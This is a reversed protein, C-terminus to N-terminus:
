EERKIQFINGRFSSQRITALEQDTSVVLNGSAPIQSGDYLILGIFVENCAKIIDPLYSDSNNSTAVIAGDFGLAKLALSKKRTADTAEQTSKYFSRSITPIWPINNNGEGDQTTFILTNPLNSRILAIKTQLDVSGSFNDSTLLIGSIQRDKITSLSKETIVPLTVITSTTNVLVNQKYLVLYDNTYPKITALEGPGLNKGFDNIKQATSLKSKIYPLDGNVIERAVTEDILFYKEAQSLNEYAQKIPPDSEIKSYWDVQHDRLYLDLHYYNNAITHTNGPTQELSRLADVQPKTAQSTLPYTGGLGAYIIISFTFIHPILKSKFLQNFKSLLVAINAALLPVVPILYFDYIQGGRILFLLFFLTFSAFIKLQTSTKTIILIATSIFGLSIIIPDIQLWVKMTQLFHSDLDWFPLQSGRNAQFLITGLLSVQNVLPFLENKLMALLPFFSLFFFITLYNITLGYRKHINEKNLYAVLYLYPPLFFLLSEKTLIAAALALASYTLNRLKTPHYVLLLLSALFWFIALNDLLVMRGFTLTLPSTIFLLGAILGFLKSNTLRRTLLYLLTTSGALILGIFIRSSLVSSGFLPAPGALLQWAGIQIWGLPFHDYWYTYPGLAGLHSLWYAQSVYIGEDGVMKPFGQINYLAIIGGVLFVLLPLVFKKM